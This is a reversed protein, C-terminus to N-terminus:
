YDYLQAGCGACYKDSDYNMTYCKKCRETKPGSSKASSTKSTSHAKEKEPVPETENFRKGCFRCVKAEFKVEEACDPCKKTKTIQAANQVPDRHSHDDNADEPAAMVLVAILGFVGFLLGIFFWGLPERNRSNAALATVLGFCVSYLIIALLM